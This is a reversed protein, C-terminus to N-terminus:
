PTVGQQKVEYLYIRWAADRHEFTRRLVLHNEAANMIPVASFIYQGGLRAFAATDLHLREIRRKSTRRIEYRKGLEDAFLYCRGGWTDFYQKLERNKALEAAIVRRFAHKYSLPYFNNYTDLTYFGNYQAVAPHLGISAVRYQPKPKGIFREVEQLLPAAYFERFSPAHVYRYYVEENRFCLILLQLALAGMAVRRWAGGRQYLLHLSLALLVYIVMPRLFHFRAFNFTNLLAVHAKIPQWGRYFWFAYWVSLCANLLMLWLFLRKERGPGMRQALLLVLLQLPLLIYMHITMVHTHGIAFNKVALRLTQLLSLRSHQFEHRSTPAEPFLLSHVFRYDIALYLFTMLVIASLFSLNWRRHRLVDWVWLGGMAALFFFFGLVFSSYLPLLLLALWHKWSASHRRIHLFAWLALPHGMTSLMGSPWFPTLSFALATGAIIWPATRSKIIHDRLLVYMGWFAVFRVVTQSIAYAVMTPFLLHLWILLSFETGYANRPLGNISQPIVAHVSGFAQGSEKLVKYWALNSDLNDHVRIHANEGLVYLPLLFLLILLGALMLYLQEQKKEKM